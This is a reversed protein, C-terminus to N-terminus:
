KCCQRLSKCNCASVHATTGGCSTIIHAGVHMATGGWSVAVHIIAGNTGSAVVHTRTVAHAQLMVNDNAM